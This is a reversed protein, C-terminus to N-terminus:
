LVKYKGALMGTCQQSWDAGYNDGSYGIETIRYTGNMHPATVTELQCLGGIKITPNMLTEFTVKQMERTPTNLLGTEASVVPIYSSIVEDAKVIYLKEDDIYWTAGPPIADDILKMSSGVLVRPRILAQQATLKGKGTNPMDSLLADIPSGGRVTRSTFSNRLDYGGSFCELETVMDPGERRNSGKFMNGKFILRPSGNYGVALSVPIYKQSEADKVLALRNSEQLNYIRITAKSQGGGVTKDVGFVIRMPPNIV